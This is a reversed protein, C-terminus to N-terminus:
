LTSTSVPGRVTVARQKEVPKVIYGRNWVTMWLYTGSFSTKREPQRPSLITPVEYKRSTQERAVIMPTMQAEQNDELM